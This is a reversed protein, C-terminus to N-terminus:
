NEDDNIGTKIKSKAEDDDGPRTEVEVEKVRGACCGPKKGDKSYNRDFVSDDGLGFPLITDPLFKLVFNVVFVVLAFGM